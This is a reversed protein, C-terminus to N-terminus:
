VNGLLEILRQGYADHSAVESAVQESLPVFGVAVPVKEVSDQGDSTKKRKLLDDLNLEIDLMRVTGDSAVAKVRVTVADTGAPPNGITVQGTNPNVKIWDPLQNGDGLEGMYFRTDRGRGEDAVMVTLGGDSPNISAVSLGVIDFAKQQADSFVVRGDAGVEVQIAAQVSTVKGDANVTETVRTTGEDLLLRESGSGDGKSATEPKAGTNADGKGDASGDRQSQGNGESGGDAANELLVAQQESIGDSSGGVDPLYGSDTVPDTVPGSGVTGDPLPTTQPATPTSGDGTPGAVPPPAVPEPVAPEAPEQVPPPLVEFSFQRSVSLGGRDTGVVTVTFTGIGSPSGTIRGTNADFTLGAPLGTVSFQLDEGNAASDVDSFQAGVDLSFPKGFDWTQDINGLGVVPADNQGQITITLTAQDTLGGADTVAYTFTDTLTQGSLRLAEVAPDTNDVVYTFSGDANITLRGYSGNVGSGVGGSFTGGEGGARVGSVVASEGNSLRDVDTDNILVNGTANSGARNNNVGGAEQATGTDNNAVPTDNRGDITITLTAQDTLGGTDSVTYTFSDTLTQGSIRLAQVDANTEDIAYTFTGDANLTLSGYQGTLAQGVTGASGSGVEAGTRVASVAATEGNADADVDSDNDLVNGTADVGDLSNLRESAEIAMAADDTAVPNDNRGHISISLQADDSLGGADTVTYTFSDTLTQGNIRLAQVDPNSDDVVYTFQGDSGLQLSGYTGVLITGVTGATGSGGETGTRVATVTQTEGSAASDADTDNTLVNGTSNSGAVANFVGGQEVADGTDDHGVPTDNRGDLTITLTAQDTLGGTDSVTYTFSDTLTQGSIRLAQVAPNTDDIAYTFTGDANLTLSGYQGALASGVTGADGSGSEIGTRVASVTETEGNAQSDVDTDNSLVDGSADVGHVSNFSDSAEIATAADDVAVPNDNRGDITIVLTAQDTLGAADRVTYTFSDTLTQGTTRLAQVAPDSDNVVYTFEGDDDLRLSGYMGTLVVGVTGATGSGSEAGTRVAFVTQTEGNAAGDVLVDNALVNGTADSGASANFVGGQEVAAAADDNGVPTDNRGDITISLTAHDTLGGSDSVTYVFSDTLTQGSLRLAQVDPNTEDTIYQYSGDAGIHLTGYLGSVVRGDSSDTGAAVTADSGGTSERVATVAGNISPTDTSDIDTDNTLVNGTASTGATGNAVGGAEMVDDTDAVGIPSDNSPTINVTFLQTTTGGQGDSVTVTFTDSLASGAPLMNVATANPVFSYAGTASTLTLTGYTGALSVSGGAVSGGSIGFSPTGGENPAGGHTDNATFSGSQTAFTDSGTSDSLSVTVPSSTFVAGDNVSTVSTALTVASASVASTSGDSTTDFGSRSAGSTFSGGFSSDVAHVSLNGPTGNWDASPLFRLSATSPLLLANSTSVSGVDYWTSGDTTYQWAGQAASSADASIAIGALTDVPANTADPDSLRSSFLTSVTAGSPNTADEAVAGLTNGSTLSPADNVRVLTITASASGAADGTGDAATMTLTRSASAFDQSSNQYTVLRSITTINDATVAGPPNAQTVTVNDIMLKGGLYQGGTLDFSGAVFVFRYVGEQGSAITSTNTVWATEQNSASGTSNLITITAGTNVNIIYGYADYADGGSLAKWDFSVQDGAQLTVTGNSYVAPGRIVGYPQDISANGTNLELALDGAVDAAYNSLNTTQTFSGNTSYDGTTNGSAYTSDVPTAQGAIQYSGDLRIRGGVSTWGTIVTDGNSGTQFSGNVFANSFNIRLNQGNLGNYTSDVSGIIESASGTGRYVTTGVISVVGSATSASGSTVLGLTETTTGGTLSFEIYGGSFDSAGGITINSDVVVTGSDETYSFDSLQSIVPTALVQEYSHVAVAATEIQGTASELDWDGGQSDAGTLDSSAAVDAGTLDAMEDIFDQGASDAGVYCGYLMLDAEANLSEGIQALLDSYQGINASDLTLNGLNLQGVDGHSYVHIADLGTQGQLAAAIQELGNSSSDILHVQVDEGLGDVLTQYDQVQTDVFVVEQRAQTPAVAEPALSTDTDEQAQSDSATAPSETEAEEGSGITLETSTNTDSTPLGPATSAPATDSPVAEQSVEVSSAAEAVVPEVAPAPAPAEAAPEAAQDQFEVDTSLDVATVLAAGDLLLRPELATILPKRRFRLPAQNTAVHKKM